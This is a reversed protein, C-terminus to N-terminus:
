SYKNATWADWDFLCEGVEVCVERIQDCEPCCPQKIVIKTGAPYDKADFTLSQLHEEEMDGEAHVEWQPREENCGTGGYMYPAMEVWVYVQYELEKKRKM